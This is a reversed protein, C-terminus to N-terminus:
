YWRGSPEFYEEVVASQQSAMARRHHDFHPHDKVNPFADWCVKGVLEAAPRGLIEAANRNVYSFRRESDLSVFADTIRELMTGVDLVGAPSQAAHPATTAARKRATKRRPAKAM